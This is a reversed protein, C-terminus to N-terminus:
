APGLIFNWSGTVISVTVATASIAAGAALLTWERWGFRSERAWTRPGHGGFGRTEMATALTSGRRISLVFLAFAM